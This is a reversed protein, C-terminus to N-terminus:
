PQLYGAVFFSPISSCQPPDKTMIGDTEIWNDTCTLSCAPIGKTKIGFAEVWTDECTTTCTPVGKTKIGPTTIWTDECSIQPLDAYTCLWREYHVAAKLDARDGDPTFSVSNVSYNYGCDDSQQVERQVIQPIKRQFHSMDFNFIAEATLINAVDDLKFNFNGRVPIYIDVGGQSHKIVHYVTATRSAIDYKYDTLKCQPCSLTVTHSGGESQSVEVQGFFQTTLSPNNKCDEDRLHNMVDSSVCFTAESDGMWQYKKNEEKAYYYYSGSSLNESLVTACEGPWIKWWGSAVWSSGDNFGVATTIPLPAKNCFMLGATAPRTNAFFVLFSVLALLLLSNFSNAKQCLQYINGPRPSGKRRLPTSM